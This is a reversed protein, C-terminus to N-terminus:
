GGIGKLEIELGLGAGLGAGLRWNGKIRDKVRVRSRVRVRVRPPLPLPLHVTLPGAPPGKGGKDMHATTGKVPAPTLPGGVELGLGGRLRGRM